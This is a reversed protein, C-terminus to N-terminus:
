KIRVSTSNAADLSLDDTMTTQDVLQGGGLDITTQLRGDPDAVQSQEVGSGDQATITVLHTSGPMFGAPTRLHVKGTGTLTFSSGDTRAASLSLFEDNQREVSVDYGWVAFHPIVTRYSFSGSDVLKSSFLDNAAPVIYDAYVRHNNAGHV